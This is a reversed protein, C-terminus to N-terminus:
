EAPHSTVAFFIGGNLVDGHGAVEYREFLFLDGHDTKLANPPTPNPCDPGTPDFGFCVWARGSFQTPHQLDTSLGALEDSLKTADGADITGDEIGLPYAVQLCSPGVPIGSCSPGSPWISGFGVGRGLVIPGNASDGRDVSVFIQNPALTAHITKRGSTIAIRAIGTPNFAVNVGQIQTLQVNNTDSEFTLFVRANRFESPGLKVDAVVFGTYTIPEATVSSAMLAVGLFAAIRIIKM